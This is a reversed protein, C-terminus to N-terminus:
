NQLVYLHYTLCNRFLVSPKFEGHLHSLFYEFVFAVRQFCAFLGDFFHVKDISLILPVVILIVSILIIACIWLLVSFLLYLLVNFKNLTMWASNKFIYLVTVSHEHGDIKVCPDQVSVLCASACSISYSHFISESKCTFFICVSFSQASFNVFYDPPHVFAKRVEFGVNSLASSHIPIWRVQDTEKLWAYDELPSLMCGGVSTLEYRPMKGISFYANM